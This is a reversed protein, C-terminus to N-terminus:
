LAPLWEWQRCIVKKKMIGADGKLKMNDEKEQRLQREYRNKLELIERDTDEEIQRQMEDSERQQQRQEDHAQLLTSVEVPWVPISVQELQQRMEQLKEQYFETLEALATEKSEAMEVLQKEYDQLLTYLWHSYYTYIYM